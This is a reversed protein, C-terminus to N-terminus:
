RKRPRPVGYRDLKRILTNRSIGLQKAARTQNGGCDELAQLIRRKELSQMEDKLDPDAEPPVDLRDTAREARPEHTAVETPPEAAAPYHGSPPRLGLHAVGLDQDACLLV